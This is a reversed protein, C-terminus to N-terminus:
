YMINVNKLPINLVQKYIQIWLIKDHSYIGNLFLGREYTPIYLRVRSYSVGM